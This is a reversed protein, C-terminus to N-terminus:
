EIVELHRDGSDHIIERVARAQIICGNSAEGPHAHSDGHILFNDRGFMENAVDPLLRLCYPGHTPSNFPDGIRYVGRPIPGINKLHQCEPSNKGEKCGSYGGLYREVPKDDQVHRLHGSRQEYYWTM